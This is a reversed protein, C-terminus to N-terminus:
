MQRRYMKIIRKCIEGNVCVDKNDPSPIYFPCDKCFNIGSASMQEAIVKLYINAQHLEKEISSSM